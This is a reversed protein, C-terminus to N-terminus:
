NKAPLSASAAASAPHAYVPTNNWWLRLAHWYIRAIAAHNAAPYRCASWRLADGLNAHSTRQLHLSAQFPRQDDCRNQIRLAITDASAQISWAYQMEMPLFPSVHFQKDTRCAEQWHEPGLVYCHRERWPINRVEAVVAALQRSHEELCFYFSVPNFAVGWKRGQTLLLIRGQPRDGRHAEVLDCVTERWNQSTPPLFDERRVDALGNGFWPRYSARWRDIDQLDVLFMSLRYRFRHPHPSHRQHAVIGSFVGSHM